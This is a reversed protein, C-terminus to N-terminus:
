SIPSPPFPSPLYARPPIPQTLIHPSSYSFTLHLIPSPSPLFLLLHPSSHSITLPPAPSSSPLFLLLYPSHVPSHSPLFAFLHPSSRSFTLPPVRFPSPLFAFLHPSSHSFTLPLVRFPSPLFAFLHPSSRSFTLPPVRFPSPLFAFLHPSSRSFTLSPVHFPSPLSPLIATHSGLGLWRWRDAVDYALTALSAAMRRAWRDVLWAPMAANMSRYPFAVYTCKMRCSLVEAWCKWKISSPPLLLSPPSSSSPLFHSPSSSSSPLFHSPPSLFLSPQLFSSPFRLFTSTFCYEGKEQGEEAELRLAAVTLLPRGAHHPLYHPHHAAPMTRCITCATCYM